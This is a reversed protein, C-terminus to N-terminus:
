FEKARKGGQALDCDVELRAAAVDENAFVAGALGGQQPNEGPEHSWSVARDLDKAALVGVLGAGADTVHAM